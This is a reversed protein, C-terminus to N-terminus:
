KCYGDGSSTGTIRYISIYTASRSGLVIASAVTATAAIDLLDRNAYFIM